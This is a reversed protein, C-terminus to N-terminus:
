RIAIKKPRYKPYALKEYRLKVAFFFSFPFVFVAVAAVATVAAVVVVMARLLAKGTQVYHQSPSYQMNRPERHWRAITSQPATLAPLGTTIIFHHRGWANPGNGQLIGSVEAVSVDWALRSFLHIVFVGLLVKGTRAFGAEDAQADDFNGLRRRRGFLWKNGLHGGRRCVRPKM